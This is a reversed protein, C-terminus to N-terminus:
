GSYNFIMPSTDIFTNILRTDLRKYAWARNPNSLKVSAHTAWLCLLLTNTTKLYRTGNDLSTKWINRININRM